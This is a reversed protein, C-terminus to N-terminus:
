LGISKLYDISMQAAELPSRGISLDQEIIFWEAGAEIGAKVIAPMDQCGHGVPRFEFLATKNSGDDSGDPRVLAYPPTQGGCEGAFDKLHVIPARGAYKGIYSVPDEGAYKVWCVDIQTKLLCAPIADYLFDLGYQGSIMDFEFNHNHYLLQIGAEKLLRGYKYMGAIAKAFGAGGPRQFEDLYPIATYKCGLGMLYSAEEFMGAACEPLAVHSSIAILGTEDLMAKIDAARHGYYGGFEVGDYGMKAAQRLVGLLDVAAEERASYLQYGLKVNGM